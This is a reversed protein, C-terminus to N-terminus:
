CIGLLTAVNNIFINKIVANAALLEDLDQVSNNPNIAITM